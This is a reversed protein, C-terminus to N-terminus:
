IGHQPASNCSDPIFLDQLKGMKHMERIYDHLEETPANTKPAAPTWYKEMLAYMRTSKLMIKTIAELYYMMGKCSKMIGFPNTNPKNAEQMLPEVVKDNLTDLIKEVVNHLKTISSAIKYFNLAKQKVKSM